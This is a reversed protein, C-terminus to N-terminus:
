RGFHRQALPQRPPQEAQREYFYMSNRTTNMVPSSNRKSQTSCGCWTVRCILVNVECRLRGTIV